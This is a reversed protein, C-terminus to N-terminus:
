ETGSLTDMAEHAADEEDIASRDVHALNYIARSDIRQRRWGAELRLATFAVLVMLSGEGLADMAKTRRKMERHVREVCNTTKLALWFRREFRYHSVLADLDKEICAVAGQGDGDMAAKLKKFANRAEDESRAYMVKDLLVKFPARLRSPAKALANTKAHTWCRATVSNPFEDRFLAELGPLGDMVGVRVASAGLGRRKLERFAARWGDVGERGAPEVALLSRHNTEDVGIVVLWPELETSGRRQVRFNTGDIFLAWCPNTLERTLWKEAAPKLETMSHLVTERSVEIDLVRKSITAITRSSIGALHLLALNENRRPDIRERRPVVASRFEGNRDRPVSLALKGIGALAYERVVFGNRRNSAQEERGLFLSMEANLLQDFLGAVAERIGTSVAALGVRRNVAFAEAAKRAESVSIDLRMVPGGEDKMQRAPTKSKRVM